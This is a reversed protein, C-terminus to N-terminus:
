KNPCTMSDHDSPLGRHQCLLCLGTAHTCNMREHGPQHCRKCWLTAAAAPASTGSPTAPGPLPWGKGGKAVGKAGGKAGKTGKAVM